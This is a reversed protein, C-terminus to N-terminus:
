QGRADSEVEDRDFDNAPDILDDNVLTDLDEDPAEANVFDVYRQYSDATLAGIPEDAPPNMLPLYLEVLNSGLDDKYGDPSAERLIELTREPNAQGFVVGKASARLFGEVTERNSDLYKQTVVVGCAPLDQITESGVPRLSLGQVRLAVFDSFSGGVADVKKDRIAKLAVATGDGIPLMKVDSESLGAANLIGRVIPVEGGAPDSIGVTLGKLDVPSEIDSDEPVAVGFISGYVTTFVPRIDTFGQAYADVIASACTVGVDGNGAVLQQIVESSGGAYQYSTRIGEEEFYGAAEAVRHPYEIPSEAPILVRVQQKGETDASSDGGACGALSGLAVVVSGIVLRASKVNFM